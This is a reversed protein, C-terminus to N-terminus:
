VAERLVKRWAIKECEGIKKKTMGWAEGIEKSTWPERILCCCNKIHFAKNTMQMKRNTLKLNEWFLNHPCKYDKCPVPDFWRKCM